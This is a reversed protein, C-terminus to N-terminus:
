FINDMRLHIVIHYQKNNEQIYENFANYLNYRSLWMSMINHKIINTTTSYKEIVKNDYNEYNRIILVPKYLEIVKQLIEDTVEKPHSIFIDVQDTHLDVLNNM